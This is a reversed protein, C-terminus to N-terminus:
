PLNKKLRETLKDIKKNEVEQMSKKMFDNAQQPDLQLLKEKLHNPISMLTLELLRRMEDDTFEPIKRELEKLLQQNTLNNPM